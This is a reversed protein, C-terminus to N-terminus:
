EGLEPDKGSRFTVRGTYEEIESNAPSMSEMLSLELRPDGNTVGDSPIYFVIGSHPETMFVIVDEYQSTSNYKALYPYTQM